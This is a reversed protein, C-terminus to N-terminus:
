YESYETGTYCFNWFFYGWRMMQTLSNKDEKKSRPLRVDAASNINRAAEAHARIMRTYKIKKESFRNRRAQATM